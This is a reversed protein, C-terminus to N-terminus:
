PYSDSALKLKQKTKFLCSKSTGQFSSLLLFFTRDISRSM